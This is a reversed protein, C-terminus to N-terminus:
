RAVGFLGYRGPLVRVETDGVIDVANIIADGAITVGSASLMRESSSRLIDRLLGTGFEGQELRSQAATDSVMFGAAKAFGWHARFNVTVKTGIQLNPEGLKTNSIAYTNSVAYLFRWREDISDRV